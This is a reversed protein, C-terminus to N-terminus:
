ESSASEVRSMDVGRRALESAMQRLPPTGPQLALGAHVHRAAEEFRGMELLAM